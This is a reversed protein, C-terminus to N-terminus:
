EGLIENLTTELKKMMGKEIPRMDWVVNADGRRRKTSLLPNKARCEMFSGKNAIVPISLESGDRREVILHFGAAGKKGFGFIGGMGEAAEFFEERRSTLKDYQELVFEGEGGFDPGVILCLKGKDRCLGTLGGRGSALLLMSEPAFGEKACKEAFRLRKDEMNKLNEKRIAENPDSFLGM